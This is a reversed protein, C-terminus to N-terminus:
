TVLGLFSIGKYESSGSCCRDADCFATISTV